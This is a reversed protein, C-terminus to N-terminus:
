SRVRLTLRAGGFPSKSMTAEGGHLEAQQAVLALGLGSGPASARSGRTFREFVRERDEAPIGCGDDDITIEIGGDKTETSSHLSLEVHEADGHRVANTIANDIALRLGAALGRIVTPGSDHVTVVLGTHLRRAEQACRDLVEALDIDEYDAEATLNGAALRELAQLTQEIRRVSQLTEIIVERREPEPPDLSELVELNTRMATLPTRLEHASVAAFDRATELAEFTRQKERTIRELMGSIAAALEEAELAGTVSPRPTATEPDIQRTQVALQRLPRIAFGGLLWGLAAAAAIALMSVLITNRREEGIQEETPATPAAVSITTRPRDPVAITRIRYEAGEIELTTFGEPLEPLALNHAPIIIPGARYTAEYEPPIQQRADYLSQNAVTAAITSLVDLRQDLQAYSERQVGAWVFVAVTVVVITAGAAAALAARTLLSPSARRM